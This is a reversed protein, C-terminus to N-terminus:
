LWSPMRNNRLLDENTQPKVIYEARGDKVLVMPPVANLNYNSAMSYNYAGTTFVAIIDGIEAKQLKMDVGILDGSECCKGCISVTDDAPLSAKNAVVASYVSRYLAFRPNDFMGGDIGIYKRIGLDKVTGVTYLTIGAEGVIARGPEIILKPRKLNFGDIAEAILMALNKVTYSYRNPTFQPDDDTYYVGFGGGMNLVGVTIGADSLRRLFDTMVTIAMKYASYDFIQSGIHCHLGLFELRDDSALLEVAHQADDGIAIGFKSDAKATQVAEHTHATVLPNVRLLVRAKKNLEGCLRKLRDIECFSDVVIYGVGWSLAATLEGDTKNNGHFIVHEPNVGACQAAYLEGGSVVDTYLGESSTIKLVATTCLAKSAYTVAVNDQGYGSKLGELFARSVKRIYDEDLVYLPTGFKKALEEAAIGGIILQQDKVYLTDRTNM